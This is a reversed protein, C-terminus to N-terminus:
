PDPSGPQVPSAVPQSLTRFGPTRGSASTFAMGSLPAPWKAAWCPVPLIFRMRRWIHPYRDCRFLACRTPLIGEMSPAPGKGDAAPALSFCVGSGGDEMRVPHFM